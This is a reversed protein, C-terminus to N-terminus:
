GLLHQIYKARLTKTIEGVKGASKSHGITKSDLETIGIVFTSASTLFCEDAEYAEQITFKREEVEYGETKAIDLISTRTIGKLIQNNPPRTIVKGGKV